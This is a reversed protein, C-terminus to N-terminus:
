IKEACFYESKLPLVIDEEDTFYTDLVAQFKREARQKEAKDLRVIVSISMFHNLMFNKNGKMANNGISEVHEICRFSLCGDFSKEWEGLIKRPTGDYYLTLVDEMKRVWGIQFDRTLWVLILRGGTVLVRSIEKVNEETAFWHFCQACIINQVSSNPLPINSASCVLTGLDQTQQRLVSLFDKLPDSALYRSKQLNTFRELIKRTFKGTGAGLELIDYHVDNNEIYLNEVVHSVLEDTYEPRYQEYFTGEKFGERATRHIGGKASISM